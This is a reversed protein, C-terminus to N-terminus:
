TNDIVLKLTVTAARERRVSARSLHFVDDAAVQAPRSNRALPLAGAEIRNRVWTTSRRCLVAAEAITVLQPARSAVHIEAHNM